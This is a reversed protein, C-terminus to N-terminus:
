ALFETAKQLIERALRHKSWGEFPIRETPTFLLGRTTEAGMAEPPNAVLLTAGKQEQKERGRTELHEPEELAFAVVVQGPRRPMQALLDETPELLVQQPGRTRPIKHSSPRAPRFDSVAAAMIVIDAEPAWRNLVERMERTTRVRAFDPTRPPDVATEGVISRVRAGFRLAWRVLAVGMRGSSRNTIVRVRDLDEETRGYVVLVRRGQLRNMTQLLHQVERAIAEPESMRGPGEDGSALPGTEPGVFVAGLGELRPLIGLDKLTEYMEGHMAPAVVVPKRIMALLAMLANDAIGHAWKGLTNYSAPAVVVLDAWRALDVHLIQGSPHWFDRDTYAPTGTLSTFTVPGVFREAAPTLLTRVRHGQKVLWRALLASKYAAISGTVGLLLKV